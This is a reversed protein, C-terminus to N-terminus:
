EKELWRLAAAEELLNRMERSRPGHHLFTRALREGLGAERLRSFMHDDDAIFLTANRYAYALAIQSRYDVAHDRRGALIFVETDLDRLPAPDFGPAPIRGTEHAQLLPAAVLAENEMNPFVADPFSALRGALPQVIEYIRIRIPVGRPSALLEEIADVQYEERYRKLAAEDNRAMADIAAARAAALRDPPVFFNQRRITANMRSGATM